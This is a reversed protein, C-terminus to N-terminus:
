TVVGFAPADSDVFRRRVSAPADESLQRIVRAPVGGVLCDPPVDSTVVAGAAVIAGAGISVGPLVVARSSIWAGDGITIPASLTGRCRQGSPGIVHDVTLLMVDHGIRVNNGITVEADVDILCPGSIVVHQGIHLKHQWDKDGTIHLDGCVRSREGIEAGAVRWATTRTFNFAFPPLLHGFASACVRRPELTTLEENLL